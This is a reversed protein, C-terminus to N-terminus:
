LTLSALSQTSHGNADGQRGGCKREDEFLSQLSTIALVCCLTLISSMEAKKCVPFRQIKKPPSDGATRKGGTIPCDYTLLLKLLDDDDDDDTDNM